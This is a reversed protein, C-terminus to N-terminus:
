IKKSYNKDAFCGCFNPNFLNWFLDSTQRQVLCDSDPVARTSVDECSDTHKPTKTHTHTHSLCATLGQLAELCSAKLRPTSFYKWTLALDASPSCSTNLQCSHGDMKSVRVCMYLPACVRVCVRCRRRPVALLRRTLWMRGTKAAHCLFLPTLSVFLCTLLFFLFSLLGPSGVADSFFLSLNVCLDCFELSHILATQSSLTLIKKYMHSFITNVQTHTDTLTHTQTTKLIPAAVRCSNHELSCITQSVDRELAM